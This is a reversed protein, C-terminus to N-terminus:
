VAACAVYQMTAKHYLVACTGTNGQRQKALILDTEAMSGVEKQKGVHILVINDADAEIMGSDRLDSIRPPRKENESARSLQCLLVIATDTDLAVTKLLSTMAGIRLDYRDYKGAIDLRGLYDVIVLGVGDKRVHRRIRAAIKRVDNIKDNIFIAERESEAVLKARNRESAFQEDDTLGARMDQMPVGTMASLFRQGLQEANMEASIFLVPCGGSAKAAHLALSVGLSTKGTSPRGGGVTLTGRELGRGLMREFHGLGCPISRAGIASPLPLRDLVEPLKASERDDLSSLEVRELEQAFAAVMEAPDVMEPPQNAEIQMRSGIGILRRLMWCERVKRLYFEPNATDAYQALNVLFYRWGREPEHDSSLRPEVAHLTIPEGADRTAVITRYLERHEMTYFADGSDGLSARVADLDLDSKGDNLLNGLLEVEAEHSSPPPRDDQM